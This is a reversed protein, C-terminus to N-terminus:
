IEHVGAPGLPFFIGGSFVGLRNDIEVAHEVLEYFVARGLLAELRGRVHLLPTPELSDPDTEVRLKHEAGAEVVEDMNTTFFLRQDQGEGQVDVRVALFHACEVKILIKEVPTVLYTEGDADKRLVRSFLKVLPLRSIRAGEHWWSGDKRIVMDM